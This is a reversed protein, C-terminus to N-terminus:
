SSAKLMSAALAYGGAAGDVFHMHNRDTHSPVICTVLAEDQRHLGFRCVGAQAAQVLVAELRDGVDSSVDVTLKLGDEYKRFDANLAVDATHQRADFGAIARGRAASVRAVGAEM